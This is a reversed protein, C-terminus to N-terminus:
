REDKGKARAERWRLYLLYGVYALIVEGWALTIWTWSSWQAFDFM